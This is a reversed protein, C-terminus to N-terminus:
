LKRNAHQIDIGIDYTVDDRNRVEKTTKHYQIYNCKEMCHSCENKHSQSINRIASFFCTRGFVDCENKNSNAYVFDWPICHCLDQAMKIHCEYKCGAKSYTKFTASKPLDDHPALCSRKEVDLSEFEESVKLGTPTVDIFYENGAALKLAALNIDYENDRLM